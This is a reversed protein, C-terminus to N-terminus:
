GKNEPTGTEKLQKIEDNLLRPRGAIIEQFPANYYARGIMEVGRLPDGKGLNELEDPTYTVNSAGTDFNFITAGTETNTIKTMTQMRGDLRQVPAGILEVKEKSPQDGM